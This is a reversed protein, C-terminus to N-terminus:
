ILKFTASIIERKVNLNRFPKFTKKRINILKFGDFIYKIERITFYHKILGSKDIATNKENQMNKKSSNHRFDGSSFDEFLVYGNKSLLSKIKKIVKIRDDKLFNNLIYNCVIVDFKKNLSLKLIDENIIKIRKYSGIKKLAEKSFDVAYVERPNHNIIERLTKGTGAGLELVVKNKLLDPLKSKFHWTLHRYKEDWIRKQSM